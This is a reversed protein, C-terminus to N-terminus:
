KSKSLTSVKDDSFSYYCGEGIIIHDILGIQMVEGANQLRETEKIDAESPRPNGSPHNHYLILAKANCALAKAMIIRCDIPTYDLSGKSILVRSTPVSDANVFVVYTEEHGLGTLKGGLAAVASRSDRIRTKRLPASNYESVVDRLISVIQRQQESLPYLSDNFSESLLIKVPIDTPLGLKKLAQM